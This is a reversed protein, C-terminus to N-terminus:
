NLPITSATKFKLTVSANNGTMPVWVTLPDTGIQEKKWSSPLNSIDGAKVGLPFTIPAVCPRQSSITFSVVGTNTNTATLTIKANDRIARNVFMTDMDDLKYSIVPWTAIQQFASIVTEVFAAHMSLPTATYAATTGNRGTSLTANINYTSLPGTPGVQITQSPLLDTKLNAQHFMEGDNRLLMFKYLMRDAEYDLMEKFTKTANPYMANYLREEEQVTSCNYYITSPSRPVVTLGAYNSSEQTTIFPWHISTDNGINPRSTDGVISVIGADFMARIADGNWIGSIGTTVMTRNSWYAKGMWLSAKAFNQNTTLENYADSYSCNNLIEHTFTHSSMYFQSANSYFFNYLPDYKKFTPVLKTISTVNFQTLNTGPWVTMGTGLPKVFNIDVGELYKDPLFLPTVPTAKGSEGGQSKWIAEYVGNGNFAMETVFKSGPNMRKNLDQQWKVANVMDSATIRFGKPASDTETSLFVDDIQTSFSIRRYGTFFGRTAWTFWTHSLIASTTSWWGLPFYLSLQTYGTRKLIAGAISPSAPVLLNDAPGGEFMFVPTALNTDIIKGPYHFLGKSSLAVTVHLGSQNAIKVGEPAAFYIREGNDVGPYALAVGTVSDPVDNIRVVRVNYKTLYSTLRIQDTAILKRLGVTMVVASYAGHSNPVIELNPLTGSGPVYLDYPASYGSLTQTVVKYDEIDTSIILIKQNVKFSTLGTVKAPYAGKSVWSLWLDSLANSTPHTASWALYFSLQNYGKWKIAAAAVTTETYDPELPLFNLIPKAINPDSIRGNYHYIGESSWFANSSMKAATAFSTANADFVVTQPAGSGAWMAGLPLANEVGSGWEPADNLKVLSVNYKVLYSELDLIQTTNLASQWLGNISYFLPSTMIVMSYNGATANLELPLAPIGTDPVTIVHYPVGYQDLTSTGFLEEDPKSLVLAQNVKTLVPATAIQRKDLDLTDIPIVTSAVLWALSQLALLLKLHAALPVWVTLPDLGIQERRWGSPFNTVNAATLGLPLTVPATCPQASAVRISLLHTTNRVLTMQVGANDRLARDVFMREMDDLKYTIIPWNVLQNFAHVIAETWASYLSLVGGSYAPTAGTSASNYSSLPQTPGVQISQDPRLDAQRLNAQHFMEGDNRLIMFKHLVRVTEDDIIQKLSRPNNPYMNRYLLEEEQATSCNYYINTPARPVSLLGGVNSIESKTIYPWHISTDNIINPRSTDGVVSRIGNDFMARIADGNFIGSIGTTIMSHSSWYSKGAWGSANAFNQNTRIENFADYYSCNNLIEHTFTHSSMFFQSANAHFFNYLPDLARFTPVLATINPVSFKTVDRPWVTVGTGMPKIFNVDTYLYEIPLFLPEITAKGSGGQAKYVQEYVGNGNFAIETVYRSGPNMRRNIDQQWRLIGRMDDASLRYSPESKNTKTGLLVDDIQSSFSIRRYGMYLGRTGWHFGFAFYTSMQMYGGRNLIAAAVTPETYQGAPEFMMIPTALAPDTLKGNYHWMGKSTVALNERLGASQAVSVGQSSFYIRQELDTGWTTKDYFAIGTTADPYDNLKVIRINYKLLYTEVALQERISLNKLSVTTVILSYAGVSNATTELQLPRENPVFLDYPAGYGDLLQTVVTYDINRLTIVLIRQNTRFSTLPAIRPPYAGKSAWKLWVENLALSTPHVDSFTIYMSLQSYGPKKVVAAAVTETPFDPLASSLTLIPTAVNGNVIRGPYRWLWETSFPTLPSFRVETAMSAASQHFTLTQAVGTGPWQAGVPLVNEVGTSADPVDALKVLTANYRGLYTELSQLQASTLASQWLGNIDYFLPSTMIVMSFNGTTNAVLELPLDSIGTSPVTRVIHPVLYYSLVNTALNEEGPKSLVLAQVVASPTPRSTTTTTPTTRTTTSQAIATTATTTGAATQRRDLFVENPVLAGSVLSLLSSFAVLLYVNSIM